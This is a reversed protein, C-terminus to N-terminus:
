GRVWVRVEGIWEEGGIWEGGRAGCGGGVGGGGGDDVARVTSLTSASGLDLGHGSERTSGRSAARLSSRKGVGSEEGIEAAATSGWGCRRGRRRTRGMGVGAASRGGEEDRGNVWPFGRKWPDM